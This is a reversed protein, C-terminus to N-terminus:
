LKELIKNVLEIQISYDYVLWKEANAKYDELLKTLREKMEDASLPTYVRSYKIGRRIETMGDKSKVFSMDGDSTMLQKGHQVLRMNRYDGLDRSDIRLSVMRYEPLQEPFVAILITNDNNIGYFTMDTKGCGVIFTLVVILGLVSILKKM